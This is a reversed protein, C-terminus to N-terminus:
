AVGGPGRRLVRGPLTGTHQGSDVVVVGNVVVTPIGRPYRHPDDYTARDIVTAPGFMTIDAWYRQLASPKVRRTQGAITV